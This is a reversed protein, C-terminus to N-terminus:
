SYTVTLLPAGADQYGAFLGYNRSYTNGSLVSGDGAYLALANITGAVLASVAAVPIDITLTAGQAVSAIVGYNGSRGPSGSKGSNTMGYLHAGIAASPGVGSLRKLRLTASLISKGALATRLTANAFWMGGTIEGYQTYGQRINTESSSWSSQYWGSNVAAYNATTLAPPPAPQTGSAQACGSAFVQGNNTALTNGAPITGQCSILGGVDAALTNYTVPNNSAGVVNRTALQSADSVLALYRANYLECNEILANAGYRMRVLSGATGSGNLSCGSFSACATATISVADGGGGAPLQYAINLNNVAVRTRNDEVAIAGHITSGNGNVILRGPGGIGTIMVSEYLAAGSAIEITVPYPLTAGNVAGLAASLSRFMAGGNPNVTLAQGGFYRPTVSPSTVVDAYLGSIDIQVINRDTPVGNVIEPVGILTRPSTIKTEEATIVVSSGVEVGGAINGRVMLQMAEPTIKAEASSVRTGLADTVSRDAKLAILDAQQMIRTELETLGDLGAKANIISQAGLSLDRYDIGGMVKKWLTRLTDNLQKLNLADMDYIERYGLNSM